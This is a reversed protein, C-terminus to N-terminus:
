GVERWKEGGRQEDPKVGLSTRPEPAVPNPRRGLQEGGSRQPEPARDSRATLDLPKVGLTAPPEPRTGISRNKLRAPSRDTTRM